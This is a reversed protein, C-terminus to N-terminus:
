EEDEVLGKMLEMVNGVKKEQEVVQHPLYSRHEVEWVGSFNDLAKVVEAIEEFFEDPLTDSIGTIWRRIYEGKLVIKLPKGYALTESALVGVKILRLKSKDREDQSVGKEVKSFIIYSDDDVLNASTVGKKYTVFLEM